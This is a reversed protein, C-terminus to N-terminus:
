LNPNQVSCLLFQKPDVEPCDVLIRPGDLEAKVRLGTQAHIPEAARPDLLSFDMHMVQESAM